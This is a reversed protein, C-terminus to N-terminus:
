SLGSDLDLGYRQLADDFDTAFQKKWEVRVDEDIWAGDLGNLTFKRLDSLSYGFEQYMMKWVLAPTVNHFTPDDTNPHIKLGLRGMKRIPHKDSWENRQLTRMYYSNTPVVTVVLNRVICEQVLEANDLMTYCHDLRDVNLLKIATEVNRWHCGFEGAHATTKFGTERAMQYAKWFGEPPHGTELYDIGIGIVLADRNQQMRQVMVVAEEPSAQRDIAHILSSEIGLAARADLMADTIATQAEVFSLDSHHNLTGTSNWFIEAYRVSESSLDELCEYAVRYLRDTSGFIHEEMFRFAHLVGKPKEGRVYYDAIEAESIPADAQRAFEQLTEERITGYLHCHIDVKPIEKFFIDPIELNIHSM